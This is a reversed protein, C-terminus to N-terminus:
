CCEGAELTRGGLADVEGVDVAGADFFQGLHNSDRYGFGFVNEILVLALEWEQPLQAIDTFPLGAIWAVDHKIVARTAVEVLERGSVLPLLTGPGTREFFCARPQAVRVVRPVSATREIACVSVGGEIRQNLARRCSVGLQPHAGDPALPN